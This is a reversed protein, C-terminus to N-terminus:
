GNKKWDIIEFKHNKYIGYCPSDLWTGLNIYFGNNYNEFARVHSHGFLVYDYGDKIKCRAAEFLGDEEGYNKKSTYDRSKRSSSSAIYIGLDPHILSFLRQLFKNRLIKKLINYGTDNKILGDGHGLFFKKGEINIDLEDKYLKVGIEKEFFDRHMFDHNGILYHVSIGSDTISKLATFTRFFGKQIVRRYEFWYDFLDGLIFLQNGNEKVYNLFEIFLEERSNEKENSLLGFHLDSVFFYTNNM